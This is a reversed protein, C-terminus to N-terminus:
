IRQRMQQWLQQYQELTAQSLPQLFESHEFTKPNSWLHQQTGGQKTEHSLLPSLAATFQSLDQAVQPEWWFDIWTKIVQTAETDAPIAAHVWVDAWLATGSRPVVAAIERERELVPLIDTSWGVAAWTDGLILPQLYNTSGYFRVQRNLAQLQPLLRPVVKLDQTNYSQQLSKLALGIVERPQNLLSLKGKLKPHWLDSWDTPAWGLSKFKDQRYAIMTAGWRYPAGWVEGADYLLGEADRRVLAQWRPPLQSWQQLQNPHLPQILNQQIAPRLWHDGLSVLRPERLQPKVTGTDQPEAADTSPQWSELREYLSTLQTKLSLSLTLESQTQRRFQSLLQPPLTNKLIYVQLRSQNGQRCALLMQSLSLM